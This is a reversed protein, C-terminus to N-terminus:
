LGCHMCSPLSSSANLSSSSISSCFLSSLRDTRPLASRCISCPFGYAPLWILALSPSRALAVFPKSSFVSSCFQVVTLAAPRQRHAEDLPVSSGRSPGLNERDFNLTSFCLSAFCAPRLRCACWLRRLLRAANRLRIGHSTVAPIPPLPLKWAWLPENSFTPPSLRCVRLPARRGAWRRGM